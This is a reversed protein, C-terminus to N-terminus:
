WRNGGRSATRGRGGGGNGRSNDRDRFGGGGGGGGGGGDFRPKPERERAVSVSLSRGDVDQGNLTDIARQADAAREYEVFGFGRSQGTMRDSIVSVSVLTGFPEFAQRLASEDTSYSLNGVYLKNNM